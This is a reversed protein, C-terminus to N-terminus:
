LLGKAFFARGYSRFLAAFDSEHDVASTVIKRFNSFFNIAVLFSAVQAGGHLTGSAISLVPRPNKVHVYQM